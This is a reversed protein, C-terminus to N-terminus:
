VSFRVRKRRGFKRKPPGAPLPRRKHLRTATPPIREKPHSRRRQPHCQHEEAGPRRASQGPFQWADADHHAARRRFQLTERGPLQTVVQGFEVSNLSIRFPVRRRGVLDQEQDAIRLGIRRHFPCGTPTGKRFHGVLPDHQPPRLQVPPWGQDHAAAARLRRQPRDVLQRLAPSHAVQDVPVDQGLPHFVEHEGVEVHHHLRDKANAPVGGELVEGGAALCPSHGVKFDQDVLQRLHFESAHVDVGIAPLGIQVPLVLSDLPPRGGEPVSVAIGDSGVRPSPFQEFVRLLEPIRVQGQTAAVVLDHGGALTLDVAQDFVRVAPAHVAIERHGGGVERRLEGGQKVPRLLAGDEGPQRHNRPGGRRQIIWLEVLQRGRDQPVGDVGIRFHVVQGDPHRFEALPRVFVLPGPLHQVLLVADALNKGQRVEQGGGRVPLTPVPSHLPRHVHHLPVDRGEVEVVAQQPVRLHQRSREPGVNREDVPLRGLLKVGDEVANKGAAPLDRGVRLVVRHQQQAPRLDERGQSRLLSRPDQVHGDVVVHQTQHRLQGGVRQVLDKGQHPLAGPRSEDRPLAEGAIVVPGQGVHRPRGPIRLDRRVGHTAIEQGRDTPRGTSLAQQLRKM